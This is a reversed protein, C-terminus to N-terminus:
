AVGTTYSFFFAQIFLASAAFLGVWFGGACFQMLALTSNQRDQLAFLAFYVLGVVSGLRFLWGAWRGYQPMGLRWGVSGIIMVITLAILMLGSNATLLEPRIGIPASTMLSLATAS